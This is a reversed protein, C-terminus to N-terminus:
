KKYYLNNEKLYSILMGTWDTQILDFGRRALWGWGLDPDTCIATDDSHGASLQERYNYIISNVWVLKNDKHMKEIFEESAVEADGFFMEYFDGLRYFLISDQYNEKIEMYQSMM